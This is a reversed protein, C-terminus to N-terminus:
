RGVRWIREAGPLGNGESKYVVKWNTTITFKIPILTEPDYPVNTDFKVNYKTCVMCVEEEPNYQSGALMLGCRFRCVVPPVFPLESRPGRPYTLSAIRRLVMQNYRFSGPNDENGNNTAVLSIDISVNRTESNAYTIFPTARGMVGEDNYKAGKGDGIIPMVRFNFVFPTSVNEKM